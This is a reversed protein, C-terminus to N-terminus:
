YKNNSRDNNLVTYIYVSIFKHIMTEFDADGGKLDLGMQYCAEAEDHQGLSDLYIGTMVVLPSDSGCRQYIDLAAHKDGKGDLLIGALYIEEREPRTSFKSTVTSSINRKQLQKIEIANQFGEITEDAYGIHHHYVFYNM